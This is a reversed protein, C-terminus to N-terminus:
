AKSDQIATEPTAQEDTVLNQEFEYVDRACRRCWLKMLTRATALSIGGHAQSFASKQCAAKEPDDEHARHLKADHASSTVWELTKFALESGPCEEDDTADSDSSSESSSTEGSGSSDHDSDVAQSAQCPTPPASCQAPAPVHVEQVPRCQAEEQTPATPEETTSVTKQKKAIHTPSTSTATVQVLKRIARLTNSNWTMYPVQDALKDNCLSSIAKLILEQAEVQYAGMLDEDLYTTPMQKAREGEGLQEKWAGLAMRHEPSLKIASGATSVLKRCSRASVPYGAPRPPFGLSPAQECLRRMNSNFMGSSMTSSTFATSTGINSKTPSTAPFM